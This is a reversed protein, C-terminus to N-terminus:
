FPYGTTPVRPYDNYRQLQELTWNRPNQLRIADDIIKQTKQRNRNAVVVACYKNDAMTQKFSSAIRDEDPNHIPFGPDLLPGMIMRMSLSNKANMYAKYHSDNCEARAISDGPFAIFSMLFGCCVIRINKSYLASNNAIYGRIKIPFLSFIVVFINQIITM